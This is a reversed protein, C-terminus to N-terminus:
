RAGREDRSVWLGGAAVLAAVVGVPWLRSPPVDVSMALVATGAAVVLGSAVALAYRLVALATV